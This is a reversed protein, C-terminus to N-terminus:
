QASQREVILERKIDKAESHGQKAPNDDRAGEGNGMQGKRQPLNQLVREIAAKRAEANPDRSGFPAYVVFEYMQGSQDTLPFANYKQEPPIKIIADSIGDVGTTWRGLFAMFRCLPEGLENEGNESPM